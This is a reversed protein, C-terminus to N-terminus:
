RDGPRLRGPRRRHRGDRGERGVTRSLAERRKRFTKTVEVQHEIEAGVALVRDPQRDLIASQQAEFRFLLGGYEELEARLALVLQEQLDETAPPPTEMMAIM